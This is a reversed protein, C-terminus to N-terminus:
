KNNSARQNLKFVHLASTIHVSRNRKLYTKTCVTCTEFDDACHDIKQRKVIEAGGSAAPAVPTDLPATVPTASASAVSSDGAPFAVGKHVKEFHTILFTRTTYRKACAELPCVHPRKSDFDNTKARLYEAVQAHTQDGVNAPVAQGDVSDPVTIGTRKPGASKTAAAPNANSRSRKITELARKHLVGKNGAEELVLLCNLM